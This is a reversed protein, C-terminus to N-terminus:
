NTEGTSYTEYCTAIAGIAKLSGTVVTTSLYAALQIEKGPNNAVIPPLTRQQKQPLKRWINLNEIGEAQITNDSIIETKFLSYNCRILKIEVM